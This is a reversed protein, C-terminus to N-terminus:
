QAASKVDLRALTARAQRAEPTQPYRQILQRLEQIGKDKQHLQLLANGKGLQAAPAKPSGSFSELVADYAKVADSYRQQTYAIEGLYFQANGAVDDQPYFRLVQQFVKAAEKYKRRSYDRLGARYAVQARPDANRPKSISPAAAACHDQSLNCFVLKSTIVYGDEGLLASRPISPDSNTSIVTKEKHGFLAMRVNSMLATYDENFNANGLYERNVMWVLPHDFHSGTVAKIEQSLANVELPELRSWGRVTAKFYDGNDLRGIVADEPGEQISIIEILSYGKGKYKAEDLDMREKIKALAATSFTTANAGEKEREDRIRAALDHDTLRSIAIERFEPETNRDVAITELVHQDSLNYLALRAPIIKGNHDLFEDGPIRPDALTVIVSGSIRGFLPLRANNLLAQYDKNFDTGKLFAKSSILWVLPHEIRTNLDDSVGQQLGSLDNPGIGNWGQPTAKFYDGNDQRGIIADESGGKIAIINAVLSGKAKYPADSEKVRWETSAERIVALLADSAGMKAFTEFDDQTAMFDIGAAHVQPILLTDPTELKLLEVINDKSFAKRVNTPSSVGPTQGHSM